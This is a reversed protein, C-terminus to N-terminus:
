LHIHLTLQIFKCVVNILRSQLTSIIKNYMFMNGTFNKNKNSNYDKIKKSGKFKLKEIVIPKHTQIAIDIM